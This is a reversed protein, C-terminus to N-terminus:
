LIRGLNVSKASTAKKMILDRFKAMDGEEFADRPLIFARFKGTYLFISMKSSTVKYVQNWEYVVSEEGQSVKIDSENFRYEMPKNIDENQEVQRKSRTYLNLPQIVTFLLATFLLALKYMVTIDDSTVSMVFGILACASILIGIYGSISAYTHKMMFDFMTKPTLTVKLKIEM